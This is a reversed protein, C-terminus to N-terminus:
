GPSPIQQACFRWHVISFSANQRHEGIGDSSKPMRRFPAAHKGKIFEGKSGNRKLWGRPSNHRFALPGIVLVSERCFPELLLSDEDGNIDGALSNL